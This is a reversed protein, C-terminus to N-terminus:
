IDRLAAHVGTKSKAAVESLTSFNRGPFNKARSRKERKRKRTELWRFSRGTLGTLRNSRVLVRASPFPEILLFSVPPILRRQFTAKLRQV